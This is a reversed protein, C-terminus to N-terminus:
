LGEIGAPATGANQTVRRPFRRAGPCTRPPAPRPPQHVADVLRDVDSASVHVIEDTVAKL